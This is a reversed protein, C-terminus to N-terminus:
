ISGVRDRRSDIAKNSSGDRKFITEAYQERVMSDEGGLLLEIAGTAPTFRGADKSGAKSGNLEEGVRGRGCFRTARSSWPMTEIYGVGTGVEDVWIMDEDGGRTAIGRGTERRVKIGVADSRVGSDVTGVM